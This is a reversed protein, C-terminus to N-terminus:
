LEEWGYENDPQALYAEEESLESEDLNLGRYICALSSFFDRKIGKEVSLHIMHINILASNRMIEYEAGEIVCM